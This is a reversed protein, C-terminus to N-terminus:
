STLKCDSLILELTDIKLEPLASWLTLRANATSERTEKSLLTALTRLSAPSPVDYYVLYASLLEADLKCDFQFPYKTDVFYERVMHSLKRETNRTLGTFFEDVGNRLASVFSEQLLPPEVEEGIFQEIADYHALVLKVNWLELTNVVGREMGQRVQYLQLYIQIAEPKDLTLSEYLVPTCFTALDSEGHCLHTAFALVQPDASFTKVYEDRSARENGIEADVRMRRPLSRNFISRFGKPDENYSLHGTKRKVFIVQTKLLSQLHEPNGELDLEIPWYRPTTLKITKITAFDPLLCPTVMTVERSAEQDKGKLTLTIPVLCAERTEVDRTVLCRPEVALVWLHRWAQLHARNDNPSLPFRPFLACVLAAIAKNSTGISIQGGSAFLFGIAMHAAMHNGYNTDANIRGHLKRLRRLIDLDGTGVMIISLSVAVIDLCSRITNKSIREEFTTPATNSLSIFYDLYHLLCHSANRDGSGAYRLGINMCAGTIINYYAQRVSEINADTHKEEEEMDSENGPVGATHRLIGHIFPPVQAEVWEREPVISDWMILNRCLVRLLLFDPRVFDLLFLTQPVTLKAAITANNTKLYMLGLAITAGPATIDVNISEGERVCQNFSSSGGAPPPNMASYSHLNWAASGKSSDLKGGNIYRLLVDVIRIDALGFAESGRGLTIFGLGLGAALSYCERHMNNADLVSLERRGIEELMVETMRRHATGMYLLGIGLLSATQTLSPLNLNSSNPPLLAPIHVCLLKTVRSNMTGCYAAAMGLLLGISTLDHKQSLYNYCEFTVMSNARNKRWPGLLSKVHGNLGLALLFGAHSSNLEDPKNFAIWSIDIETCKSSIRLGAAVGNHFDPWDFIDHPLPSTDLEVTTNLPNIKASLNFAPIPFRETLVPLSTGYTFIGRGAPLALTRWTLQQVRQQQAATLEHEGLEPMDPMRLKTLRSSQLLKQVEAIRKDKGFRLNVIDQLTIITGDEDKKTPEAPTASQCISNVDRIQRNKEIDRRVLGQSFGVPYGLSLEALDERGILVYAEPPWRAPPSKRCQRIAERLPVGIGFPFRDMDKEELREQVMKLVMAEPGKSLLAEYIGCIKRTTECCNFDHRIAGNNTTNFISALDSIQPFHTDVTRRRLCNYLWRYIDPPSESLSTLKENKEFLLNAKLDQDPPTITTFLISSFTRQYYDIYDYWGINQALQWLLPLLSSINRQSVVKLKADECVLHLAYLVACTQHPIIETPNRSQLECAKTLWGQLTSVVPPNVNKLARMPADNNYLNHHRSILLFNWDDEEVTSLLEQRTISASSDSQFPHLLSLLTIAFNDWEETSVLHAYQRWGNFHLEFFRIRFRIFIEVPLVYSCAEMCSRVLESQPIFDSLTRVMRHDKLVVTVRNFVPDRLSTIELPARNESTVRVEQDEFISPERRRKSTIAQKVQDDILSCELMPECGSWLQLRTGQSPLILIDSFHRHTAYIPAACEAPLDLDPNISINIGSEVSSIRFGRINGKDKDFFCLLPCGDIAHAIWVNDAGITKSCSSDTWLLELYTLSKMKRESSLSLNASSDLDTLFVRDLAHESASRFFSSRKRTSRSIPSHPDESSYYTAYRWVTYRMTSKNYMVVIPLKHNRAPIFIVEENLNAFPLTSKGIEISQGFTSIRDTISVMKFEDLPDLLSYLSALASTNSTAQLEGEETERQLLLGIDLAMVRRVLFPLHLTYEEGNPLIIKMSEVLLVCLAREVQREPRNDDRGLSPLDQDIDMYEDNRFLKQKRQVEAEIDFQKQTNGKMKNDVDFVFWAFLAHMVPQEEKFSYSKKLTNGQSWVVTSGQIYLEEDFGDDSMSLSATNSPSGPPNYFRGDLLCYRKTPSEVLNGGFNKDDGGHPINSHEGLYKEGFPEFSGLLRVAM